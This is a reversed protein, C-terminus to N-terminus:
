PSHSTMGHPGVPRVEWMGALLQRVLERRSGSGSRPSLGSTQSQSVPDCVEERGGDPGGGGGPGDHGRGHGGGLLVDLVRVLGLSRHVPEHQEGLLVTQLQDLLVRPLIVPLSFCPTLTSPKSVARERERLAMLTKNPSAHFFRAVSSLSPNECFALTNLTTLLQPLM